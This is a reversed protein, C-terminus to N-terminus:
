NNNPDGCNKCLSIKKSTCKGCVHKKCGACINMTKNENCFGIQCTKPINSSELSKLLDNLNELESPDKYETSLEEALQFLFNKRSINEGTTENYLVWANIAALDLINFFVQLPWRRSGSKVYIYKRAMQDTMYVGFKTKNYFIITEPLKKNDKEINVSNHKTSLLLVKKTPKSKYVTLTCNDTKYIESSFRPLNDKKQKALKPLERKDARITGVLTTRKELLKSALSKSTFFNDTTVNRGAGTFPEILKLVVFESLPISSQRTEDKGLYPFGNIIFKSQLDSALWFKIGFKDPKNPMYQTFRCRAKSPFLQEDISINQGPVYCNQSNKIFSYWVNSILAFKDTQLRVSRENRKDFRIFKLIDTFEKRSM